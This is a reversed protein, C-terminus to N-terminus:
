QPCSRVTIRLGEASSRTESSNAPALEQGGQGWRLLPQMWSIKRRGREERATPLEDMYRNELCWVAAGAREALTPARAQLEYFAALETVYQQKMGEHERARLRVGNRARRWYFAVWRATGTHGLAEEVMLPVPLALPTLSRTHPDM